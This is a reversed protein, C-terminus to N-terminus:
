RVVSMKGTLKTGGSELTYTYLGAPLKAADFDATYSGPDLLGNALRAVEQGLENRVVLTVFSREPVDFGINTVAGFPNPYNAGLRFASPTGGNNKVAGPTGIVIPQGGYAILTQGTELTNNTIRFFAAPVYESPTTWTASTSGEAPTAITEATAWDNLNTTWEILYNPTGPVTGKPMTWNFTVQSNGPLKNGALETITLNEFVPKEPSQITFFGIIDGQIPPESEDTIRLKCMTSPANPVAWDYTTVNSTINTVLSWEVGGDKSFEIKKNTTVNTSAEWTIAVQDGPKFVDNPKPNTITITGRTITFVESEGAINNADTIRIYCVKSGIDSPVDWSFTNVDSTLNGITTWSYRNDTTLEITKNTTIDPSVTFTIPYDQTGALIEENLSPKTITITPPEPYTTLYNSEAANRIIHSQPSGGAPAVTLVAAKIQMKDARFSTKLLKVSHHIIIPYTKPTMTGMDFKNGLVRGVAQRAVNDHRFNKIPNPYPSIKNTQDYILSDETLVILYRYEATDESPIFQVGTRPSIMLDFDATRKGPSYKINAIEFNLIPQQKAVEQIVDTFLPDDAAFFGMTGGFDWRNVLLSPAVGGLSVQWTAYVTDFMLTKYPDPNANPGHWAIIVANDPMYMEVSDMYWEGRACYECWTGTFEDIWLGRNYVQAYVQPVAFLFSLLALVAFTMRRLTYFNKM